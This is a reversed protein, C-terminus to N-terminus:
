PRRAFSPLARNAMVWSHGAAALVPESPRELDKEVEKGHLEERDPRRLRAMDKAAAADDEAHNARAEDNPRRVLLEHVPDVYVALRGQEDAHEEERDPDVEHQQSEEGLEDDSRM